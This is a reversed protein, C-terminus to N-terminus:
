RNDRRLFVSKKGTRKKLVHSNSMVIYGPSGPSEFRAFLANHVAARISPNRPRRFSAPRDIFQAGESHRECLDPIGKLCNCRLRMSSATDYPLRAQIEQDRIKSIEPCIVGVRYLAV